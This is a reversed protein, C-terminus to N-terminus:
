YHIAYYLPLMLVDLVQVLVGIGELVEADLVEGLVWVKLVGDL